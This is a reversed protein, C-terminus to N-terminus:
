TGTNQARLIGLILAEMKILLKKLEERDSQSGHAINLLRSFDKDCKDLNKSVFTLVASDIPDNGFLLYTLRIERDIKVEEGECPKYLGASIIAENTASQSIITSLILRMSNAAQTLSDPSTSYISDWSGKRKQVLDLRLNHKEQYIKLKEDLENHLKALSNVGIPRAGSPDAGSLMIRDLTDNSYTSFVYGVGTGSSVAFSKLDPFTNNKSLTNMTSKLYLLDLIQKEENSLNDAHMELNDAIVKGEDSIRVYLIGTEQLAIGLQELEQFYKKLAQIKEKNDM